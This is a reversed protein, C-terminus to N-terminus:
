GAISDAHIQGTEPFANMNGFKQPVRIFIRASHEFGFHKAKPISFDTATPRISPYPAGFSRM